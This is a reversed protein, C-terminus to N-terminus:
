LSTLNDHGQAYFFTFEANTPKNALMATINSSSSIFHTALGPVKYNGGILPNDKTHIEPVKM